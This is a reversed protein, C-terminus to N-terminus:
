VEFTEGLKYYIHNERILWFELFENKETRKVPGFDCAMMAQKNFFRGSSIITTRYVNTKKESLRHILYRQCINKM